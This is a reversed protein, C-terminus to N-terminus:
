RWDTAQDHFTKAMTTLDDLIVKFGASM